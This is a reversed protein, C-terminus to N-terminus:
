ITKFGLDRIKRRLSETPIQEVKTFAFERRVPYNRRLADFGDPTTQAARFRADDATIDYIRRVLEYLKERESGNEPFTTSPLLPEPMYPEPNFDPEKGLFTCAQEYVMISGNAKGEFSHGAIHPTALTARALLDQSFSPEGEWTDIVTARIHRNDLAAILAPTDVVAGRAANIFFAGPKMRAFFDANAMHHTALAGSRSLPVHMTVYDSEALLTDLACFGEPGEQQERPPDNRLVRMGLAEAQKVIKRGVNGIGVVGLTQGALPQEYKLALHLLAATMYEAVSRANCGPSYVWQIGQQEMYGIDMHDTGITATGVFRVSTGELLAQNVKTTSRIALITTDHIQEKQLNRGDVVQVEGLTAFAQQALPMNRDVTIKM